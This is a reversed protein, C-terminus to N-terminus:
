FPDELNQTPTHAQITHSLIPVSPPSKHIRYHIKPNWLVRRIEQNGSLRNPECSRNQEM